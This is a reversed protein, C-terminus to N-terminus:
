ESTPLIENRIIDVSWRWAVWRRYLPVAYRYTLGDRILIEEDPYCEVIEFAQQPDIELRTEKLAAKIGNLDLQPRNIEDPNYKIKIVFGWM